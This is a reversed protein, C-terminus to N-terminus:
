KKGTTRKKKKKKMAFDASRTINKIFQVRRFRLASWDEDIAVQRVPELGLDGLIQWGSDRNFDCRYKKSSGKPYCFWLLADGALKPVIKPALADIEEQRTVFAVVFATETVAHLDESFRVEEGMAAMNARFSEPAQLVTIEKHDKANMKKFVPDM